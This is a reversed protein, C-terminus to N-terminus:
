DEDIRYKKKIKQIEKMCEDKNIAISAMAEQRNIQSKIISKEVKIEDDTYDDGIQPIILIDYITANEKKSGDSYTGYFKRLVRGRRQVFQKPNGTSALIICNRAEPIDVGEDLVRNAVIAQYKEGAFDKLIIMRDRPDKPNDSTIQRNIIPKPKVNNLINKVEQMQNESCYVLLHKLSKKERLLEEFIHLKNQADRIIRARKQLAIELLKRLDPNDSSWYRAIKATELKYQIYEEETLDTYIPHYYYPVLINKQIAEQLSFEFVTRGFYNELFNTGEPDFYRELTASLGLRYSYENLLGNRSEEAGANHVEDALIMTPVKCRTILNTFKESSFTSYSTIVIGLQKERSNELISILDRLKQNWKQDKATLLSTYNWKTLEQSWQRMLNDFPCVIVVLSNDHLKEVEQICGIATFTKGTGTAMEFIGKRSNEVWKRVANQQYPRLSPSKELHIESKSPPAIQILNQNIATPLPITEVKYNGVGEIIKGNWYRQFEDFDDDVWKKESEDWNRYVRFYYYDGFLNDNFDINGSFTIANYESDWFIGTKRKFLTIKDLQQSDLIKGNEDTILVIRIELYGNALMWALAKAHDQVFKDKIESFDKIWNESLVEEVNKTGKNIAEVDDKDFSSTLVLQMKGDNQIFNQLGDACAAFNRSTFEGGVRSYRKSLSLVKNFFEHYVDHSISNYEEELDLKRFNM